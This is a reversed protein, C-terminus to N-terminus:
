ASRVRSAMENVETSSTVFTFYRFNPVIKINQAFQTRTSRVFGHIGNCTYVSYVLFCRAAANM